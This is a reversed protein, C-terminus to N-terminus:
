EDDSEYEEEDLEDDSEEPAPLISKTKDCWIGMTDQTTPDYLINESSKWYTVGEFTFEEVQVKAAVEVVEEVVAVSEKAKEEVVKKSSSESSSKVKEQKKTEKALKKAEKEEELAKKKAEKEEELAKKKAEKEEELAKKKAEKEEEAAKKKAEKEEEAAKKKAEKEEELAKKKAEKEEELVKKKAEKEEKSEKPEKTKKEKKTVTELVENSNITEEVVDEEVVDEVSSLSSNDLIESVSSAFLDIVKVSKVETPTKKPRGRKESKVVSSEDTVKKPRGRRGDVEVFHEEEIEIGNEEGIRKAEEVSSNKKKLYNLYSVPARGKGDRFEMLGKSMRDEVTGCVPKGNDSRVSEELCGKCLVENVLHVNKCQTFLGHNYELGVCLEEKVYMKNFPMSISVSKRVKEKVVVVEKKSRAIMTLRSMAESADFGYLKSCEVINEELISSMARELKQM